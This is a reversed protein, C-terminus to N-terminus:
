PTPGIQWHLINPDSPLTAVDIRTLTVADAGAEATLAYYASFESSYTTLSAANVVVTVANPSACSGVGLTPATKTGKLFLCRNAESALSLGATLEARADFAGSSAESNGAGDSNTTLRGATSSLQIGATKEGWLWRQNADSADCPLLALTADRGALCRQVDRRAHILTGQGAEDSVLPTRTLRFPPNGESGSLTVTCSAASPDPCASLNPSSCHLVEPAPQNPYFCSNQKASFFRVVHDSNCDRLSLAGNTDDASAAALCLNGFAAAGSAMKTFEITWGAQVAAALQALPVAVVSQGRRALYADGVRLGLGHPTAAAAVPTGPTTTSPNPVGTVGEPDTASAREGATGCAYASAVAIALCALWPRAPSVAASYSM